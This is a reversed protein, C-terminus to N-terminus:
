SGPILFCGLLGLCLVLTIFLEPHLIGSPAAEPVTQDLLEFVSKLAQGRKIRHSLNGTDMDRGPWCRGLIINM